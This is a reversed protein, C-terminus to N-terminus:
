SAATAKACVNRVEISDKGILKAVKLVHEPAWARRGSIFPVNLKALRIPNTLRFEPVNLLRAVNGTSLPWENM